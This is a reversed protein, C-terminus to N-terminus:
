GLLDLLPLFSEFFANISKPNLGLFNFMDIFVLHIPNGEQKRKKKGAEINNEVINQKKNKRCIFSYTQLRKKTELTPNFKNNQIALKFTL